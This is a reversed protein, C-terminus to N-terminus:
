RGDARRRGPRRRRDEAARHLVAAHRRDAGPEELPDLPLRQRSRHLALAGMLLCAILAAQVNPVVGSVMLGVMLLLCFLPRRRRAPAGAAGRRARGAPQPRAPRRHRVALREIDKWPGIVLLTDGIQLQEDCCTASSRPAPRAASRDRTLRYRNRFEAEVVTKGVLTPTPRRGHGGGHRDGAVPRQLLRRQAAAGGPRIAAPAGRRRGDARVSRGAPHRRGAARDERDPRHRGRRLRPQARHRRPERRLHQASRAGRPDQRRAAVARTVRVGTSATPSSTSSSGTACARASAAATAAAPRRPSGAARSSCTSSAWSWSPCASRRSASSTSARRATASSSATSSWTRRRRRGADDHRQDAGRRSLPMM